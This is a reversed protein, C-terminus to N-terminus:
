VDTAYVLINQTKKYTTSYLKDPRLYVANELPSSLRWGTWHSDLPKATFLTTNSGFFSSIIISWSSLVIHIMLL